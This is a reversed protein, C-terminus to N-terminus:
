IARRCRSIHILSLFLDVGDLAWLGRRQAELGDGSIQSDTIPYGDEGKKASIWATAPPRVIPVTGDVVSM